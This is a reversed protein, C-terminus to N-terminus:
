KLDDASIYGSDVLVEQLNNKDVVKADVLISPVSITGNDTEGNVVPKEGKALKIAAEVAAKGLERTDNFITMSQTGELIRKAAAKEADQGTIPVKGALGQASLAQIAAGATGDNPALIADVENNNAALAAEVIKLANEPLWNEVAQEAIVKIKGKDILPQIVNMAGKKYLTACHDTPAGALIIYNGEPVLKTLYEGQMEGVRISDFTLYLDLKDTNTILRDYAIVAVGEKKAKEVLSAAASADHPALILVDIDQSLLSEVQTIQENMNADAVKVILEIGKEKAVKEMTEKDKVWREERQTPLSLGVRIKKSSQEESAQETQAKCGTFVSILLAFALLMSVVKKLKM